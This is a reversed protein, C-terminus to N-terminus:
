EIEDLLYQAYNFPWHQWWQRTTTDPIDVLDDVERNPFFELPYCRGNYVVPPHAALVHPAGMGVFAMSMPPAASGNSKGGSSVAQILECFISFPFPVTSAQMIKDILPALPSAAYAGTPKAKTQLDSAIAPNLLDSPAEKTPPLQQATDLSNDVRYSFGDNGLALAYNSAMPLNACKPTAFSYCKVNIKKSPVGGAKIWASFLQAVAAGLSHGTVYLDIEDKDLGALISRLNAPTVRGITLSEVAQRYGLHVLPAIDPPEPLPETIEGGVPPM